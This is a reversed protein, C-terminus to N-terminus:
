NYRAFADLRSLTSHVQCRCQSSADRIKRPTPRIVQTPGNRTDPGNLQLLKPHNPYGQEYARSKGYSAGPAVGVQRLLDCPGEKGLALTFLMQATVPVITVPVGAMLFPIRNKIIIQAAM